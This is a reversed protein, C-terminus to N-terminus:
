GAVLEVFLATINDKGGRANAHRIAAPAAEHVDLRLLGQLEDDNALYEHLGDSCLLLRDGAMLPLAGVDVEVADGRGLVRTIPSKRGRAPHPKLLGRQVQLNHLTHDETLQRVDAGRGLYVRSDGVQGMVAFDHVILAVTATTCMGEYRLDSQALDRIALSAGQIADHVLVGVSAVARADRPSRAAAALTQAERQVWEQITSAAVSSAVEGSLRGGVGDCVVFLGLAPDIAFADENHDRRVGVDTAAAWRTRLVHPTPWRHPAGSLRDLPVLAPLSPDDPAPLARIGRRVPTLALKRNRRSMVQHANKCLAFDSM